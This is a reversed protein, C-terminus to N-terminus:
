SDFQPVRTMLYIGMGTGDNPIGPAAGASGNPALSNASAETLSEAM